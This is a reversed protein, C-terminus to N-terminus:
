LGLGFLENLGNIGAALSMTHIVIQHATSLWNCGGAMMTASLALLLLFKRSM